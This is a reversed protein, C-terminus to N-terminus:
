SEAILEALRLTLARAQQPSIRIQTAGRTTCVSLEIEFKSESSFAPRATITAAEQAPQIEM